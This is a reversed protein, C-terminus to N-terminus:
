NCIIIGKEKLTYSTGDLEVVAPEISVIDQGRLSNDGSRSRIEFCNQVASIDSFLKFTGSGVNFETYNIFLYSDDVVIYDSGSSGESFIPKTSDSINLDAANDLNINLVKRNFDHADIKGTYLDNIGKVAAEYPSIAPPEPKTKQDTTQTHEGSTVTQTDAPFNLGNVTYNLSQPETRLPIAELLALDPSSVQTKREPASSTRTTDEEGNNKKKLVVILIVVLAIIVAVLACIIATTMIKKKGGNAPDTTDTIVPTEEVEPDKYETTTDPQTTTEPEKEKIPVTVEEVSKVGELVPSDNVSLTEGNLKVMFAEEGEGLVIEANKITTGDAPLKENLSEDRLYLTNGNICVNITREADGSKVICELRATDNETPKFSEEYGKETEPAKSELDDGVKLLKADKIALMDDRQVTDLILKNDKVEVVFGNEGKKLTFSNAQIYEDQVIDSVENEGIEKFSITCTNEGTKKAHVGVTRGDRLEFTMVTSGEETPNITYEEAFVSFGCTFLLLVALILATLTRKIM